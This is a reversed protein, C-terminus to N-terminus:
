KYWSPKYGKDTYYGPNGGFCSNMTVKRGSLYQGWDDLEHLNFYRVDYFANKLNTVSTPTWNSLKNSGDMFRCMYFIDEMDTVKSVDFDGIGIISVLKSKETNDKMKFMGNMSTVNSTNWGSLDLRVLSFANAFTHTMDSVCSVDWKSCDYTEPWRSSGNVTPVYCISDFMYSLDTCKDTINWNSLNPVSTLNIDGSLLHSFSTVNSVDLQELGNIATCNAINNFAYSLNECNSTDLYNINNITEVNLSDFIHSMDVNAVIPSDNCNTIICENGFQFLLISENNSSSLDYLYNDGLNDHSFTIASPNLQSFISNLSIGDILTNNEEQVDLSISLNLTGNWEGVSANDVSYYITKTDMNETNFSITPNTINGEITGKGHCDTLTFTDDFCLNLIDTENLGEVAVDFSGSTLLNLHEPIYLKYSETIPPCLSTAGVLFTKLFLNIYKSVM